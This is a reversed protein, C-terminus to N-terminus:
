GRPEGKMQARTPAVPQAPDARNAQMLLRGAASLAARRDPSLKRGAVIVAALWDEFMAQSLNGRQLANLRRMRQDLFVAETPYSYNM